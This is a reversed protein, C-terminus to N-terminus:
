LETKNAELESKDIEIKGSGYEELLNIKPIKYNSLDLKPDYEGLEELKNSIDKQSLTEEENVYVEIDLDDSETDKNDAKPTAIVTDTILEIKEESQVVTVEEQVETETLVLPENEELEENIATDSEIEVDVSSKFKPNFRLIVFTLLSLFIVFGTGIKGILLELYSNMESGFIGGLISPSTFFGFFLSIWAISLIGLSFSKAIGM